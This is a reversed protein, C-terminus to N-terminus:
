WYRARRITFGTLLFFAVLAGYPVMFSSLIFSLSRIGPLEDDTAPHRVSIYPSRRVIATNTMSGGIDWSPDTPHFDTGSSGGCDGAGGPDPLAIPCPFVTIQKREGARQAPASDRGSAPRDPPHCDDNISFSRLAPASKEVSGCNPHFACRGAFDAKAAASHGAAQTLRGGGAGSMAGLPSRCKVASSRSCCRCGGRRATAPEIALGGAFPGSLIRAQDGVKLNPDFSMLGDGDQLAQLARRGGHPVPQPLEGGMVLHSVGYTGNVSRWRDRGVMLQVFVYGPFFPARATRFTRAHSITKRVAPLFTAFGQAKLQAEARFERYPQVQAAYWRAKSEEFNSVL